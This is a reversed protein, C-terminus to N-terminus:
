PTATVIYGSVPIASGNILCIDNTNLTTAAIHYGASPSNFGSQATMNIGKVPTAAL